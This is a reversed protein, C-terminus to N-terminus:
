RRINAPQPGTAQRDIAPADDVHPELLAATEIRDLAARSSVYRRASAMWPLAADNGPVRAVEALAVDAQGSELARQAREVREQPATPPADARRVVIMGALERRAAQWWPEGPAHGTLDPAVRQLDAGLSALTVPARAAAIIAAVAQPQSAAFRERLLGEIYGLDVGRDLARRAAFAVLLGEARDADGTAARARADITDLRQSLADLRGALATAAAVDAAGTAPPPVILRVPAVAVPQVIAPRGFAHRALMDLADFRGLAWGAAAIGLLFGILLLLLVRVARRRWGPTTEEIGYEDSAM